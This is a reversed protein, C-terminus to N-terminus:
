KKLPTGSNNNRRYLVDLVELVHAVRDYTSSSGFCWAFYDKWSEIPLDNKGRPSLEMMVLEKLPGAHWSSWILPRLIHGYRCIDQTGAHGHEGLDWSLPLYCAFCVPEPKAIPVDLGLMDSRFLKRANEQTCKYSKHGRHLEDKLTWCLVCTGQLKSLMTIVSALFKERKEQKSTSQNQQLTLSMSSTSGTLMISGSQHSGSSSTPWGSASSFTSAGHVAPSSSPAVSSPHSTMAAPLTSRKANDAGDVEMTDLPELPAFFPQTLQGSLEVAMHYDEDSDSDINIPSAPAKGKGKLDGPVSNNVSVTPPLFSRIINPIFDMFDRVVPWHPGRVNMNMRNICVDCLLDSSLCSTIRGDMFASICVKRCIKTQFVMQDLKFAGHEDRTELSSVSEKDWDPHRYRQNEEAIMLAFGRKGDRALRGINQVYTFFDYPFGCHLLAYLNSLDIGTGVANTAVMIPNEGSRWKAFIANKEESSLDGYYADVGLEKAVHIADAVSRCVILGLGKRARLLPLWERAKSVTARWRTDRDRVVQVAIGIKKLSFPQRIVNLFSLNMAMKFSAVVHPPLTATLMVVPCGVTFLYQLRPLHQRYDSATWMLHAEDIVIHALRGFAMLGKVYTLFAPTVANEAAVFVVSSRVERSETTWESFSIGSSRCREQCDFKLAVFPVVVITVLSSWYLKAPLMWLLSKGSGPPLIVLQHEKRRLVAGLALAQEDSKFETMNSDFRFLDQLLTSDPYDDVPPISVPMRDERLTKLIANGTEAMSTQLSKLLLVQMDQLSMTFDERFSHFENRVVGRIVAESAGRESPSGPYPAPGPSATEHGVVWFNHVLSSFLRCARVVASPVSGLESPEIAYHARAIATSHNAQRDGIGEMFSEEATRFENESYPSNCHRFYLGILIQRMSAIGFGSQWGLFKRTSNLLLQSMKPSDWRGNPGTWLYKSYNAVIDDDEVLRAILIRELPRVYRLYTYLQRTAVPPLWHPTIVRRGTLSETKLAPLANVAENGVFILTRPYNPMNEFTTALMETGRTPQGHTMHSYILLYGLFEQCSELWRWCNASNMVWTGDVSYMFYNRLNPIPSSALAEIVRDAGDEFANRPDSLFSYGVDTNQPDDYIAAPLEQNLDLEFLLVNDLISQGRDVCDHVLTRMGEVSGPSGQYVFHLCQRDTFMFNSLAVEHGRIPNFEGWSSYMNGLPSSAGQIILPRLQNLVSHYDVTGNSKMKRLYIETLVACRAVWSIAAFHGTIEGPKRFSGNALRNHLIIFMMVPDQNIDCQNPPFQHVFLKILTDHVLILFQDRDEDDDDNMNVSPDEYATLFKFLDIISTDQEANLLSTFPPDSMIQIRRQTTILLAVLATYRAITDDKEPPNFSRGRIELTPSGLAQRISPPVLYIYEMARDAYRVLGACLTKYVVYEGADSIVNAIDIADLDKVIDAWRLRKLWPPIEQSAPTADPITPLAERLARWGDMTTTAMPTESRRIVAFWKDYQSRLWIKQLWAPTVQVRHKKHVTAFHTKISGLNTSCYKCRHCVYGRMLTLKPIAYLPDQKKAWAEFQKGATFLEYQEVYPSLRATKFKPVQHNNAHAAAISPLVARHCATCILLHSPIHIFYGFASLAADQFTENPGVTQSSVNLLTDNDIFEVDQTAGSM